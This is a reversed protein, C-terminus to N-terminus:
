ELAGDAIWQTIAEIYDPPVCAADGDNICELPMRPTGGCPGKLVKIIASEQPNGVNVLPGCNKSIHSTITTHLEEKIMLNLRNMDDNHCGAGFCASQAVYKVTEFTPEIESGSGTSGGGGTSASSSGAGGSGGSGVGSSTSGSASTSGADSGGAGGAGGGGTDDPTEACGALPSLIAVIAVAIFSSLRLKM